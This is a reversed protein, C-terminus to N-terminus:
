TAEAARRGSLEHFHFSSPVRLTSAYHVVQQFTLHLYVPIQIASLIAITATRKCALSARMLTSEISRPAFDPLLTTLKEAVTRVQNGYTSPM